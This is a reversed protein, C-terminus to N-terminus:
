CGVFLVDIVVKILVGVFDGAFWVCFWGYGVLGLCGGVM